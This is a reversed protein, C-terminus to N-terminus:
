EYICMCIVPYVCVYMYMCLEEKELLTIYAIEEEDKGLSGEGRLGSEFM